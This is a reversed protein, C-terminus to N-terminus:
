QRNQKVILIQSTKADVKIDEILSSTTIIGALRGTAEGCVVGLISDYNGSAGTLPRIGCGSSAIWDASTGACFKVTLGILPIFCRRNSFTEVYRQMEWTNNSYFPEDIYIPMNNHYLAFITQHHWATESEGKDPTHSIIDPGYNIAYIKGSELQMEAIYSKDTNIVSGDSALEGLTINPTIRELEASRAIDYVGVFNTASMLNEVFDESGGAAEQAEKCATKIFDDDAVRFLEVDLKDPATLNKDDAVETGSFIIQLDGSGSDFEAETIQKSDLSFQKVLQETMDTHEVVSNIYKTLDLGLTPYRYYKGPACRVLLQASQSDSEGTAFDANKASYIVARSFGSNGYKKFLVKFNGDVDVVPLQCANISSPRGTYTPYYVADSPEPANAAYKQIPDYGGTAVNKVVLRALFTDNIPCYDASVLCEYKGDTYQVKNVCGNPVVINMYELEDSDFLKGWVVNWYATQPSTESVLWDGSQTNVLIDKAM